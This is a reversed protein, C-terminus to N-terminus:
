KGLDILFDAPGNGVSAPQRHTLFVVKLCSALSPEVGQMFITPTQPSFTVLVATQRPELTTETACAAIDKGILELWDRQDQPRSAEPAIPEFNGAKRVGVLKVSTTRVVPPPPAAPGVAPKPAESKGLGYCELLQDRTSARNVCTIKDAAIRGTECATREAELISDRKGPAPDNLDTAHEAYAKCDPGSPKNSCGVVILALVVHRV